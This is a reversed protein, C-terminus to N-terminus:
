SRSAEREVGQRLANMTVTRAIEGKADFARTMFPDAERDESGYQVVAPYFVTKGTKGSTRKLADPAKAKNPDKSVPDGIRVELQISGRRRSKVARVKVSARTAGTDSPAQAKVESALVQLGRKMAQRVVKKQVAPALRKLARDVEKIGTIVISRSNVPM